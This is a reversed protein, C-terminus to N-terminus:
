DEKEVRFLLTKGCTACDVVLLHDTMFIVAERHCFECYARFTFRDNKMCLPCCDLDEINAM